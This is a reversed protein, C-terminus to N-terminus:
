MHDMFGPTGYMSMGRTWKMNFYFDGFLQDSVTSAVKLTRDVNEVTEDIWGSSLTPLSNYEDQYTWSDLSTAYNGRFEGTCISMGLRMDEYRPQYGFIEKDQNTGQAYIMENTLGEEGLHDFARNYFDTQKKRLLMKPIGQTYTRECRVCGVIMLTGHEEAAFTGLYDNIITQSMAGTEGLDNNSGEATAIVQSMNLPFRKGGIFQARQQTKDSSEVGFIGALIEVYRSGSRAIAEYYRQLAIATRLENVTAGLATSLDAALGIARGDTMKYLSGNDDKGYAQVEALAADDRGLNINLGVLNPDKATIGTTYLGYPEVGVVPATEGLPIAVDQGKQPEPLAKTFLDSIKAVKLLKAGLNTDTTYDYTNPDYNIGTLTTDDDNYFAPEKLNEDRYYDSWIKCYARFPMHSTEIGAVGTPIGLYDALSKAAWGTTGPAEIQPIEYQVQQEWYTLDNEGWFQKFHKWTVRDPVFYAAVDFYLSDMVPYLPTTTRIVAAIPISISDGPTVNCDYALVVLDGTNWTTHNKFPRNFTSRGVKVDPLGLVKAM